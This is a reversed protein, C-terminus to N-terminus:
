STSNKKEMAQVLGAMTFEKAEAAVSFGLEVIQSSTTPSISAIKLQHLREGFLNVSSRAIASSTITVWDIENRDLALLIEPDAEMVDVSRYVAIQTVLVGAENLREALEPSGRNARVILVRPNLKESLAKLLRDALNSSDFQNPTLDVLVGREVLTEATRTGIAAVNTKPWNTTLCQCRDLFFRVGNVSAFVIWDFQNLLTISQDVTTWDAVPLIEIAPQVLVKAGSDRLLGGLSDAQDQPRTVLVTQNKLLLESM